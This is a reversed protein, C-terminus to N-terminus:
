DKRRFAVEVTVPKGGRELTLQATDGWEYSGVKHQLKAGSDVSVDDLKRLIDGVAIGARAGVSDKSVQIIKMPESGLKGMLSVGLVPLDPGEARKVGWFYNAYSAQAAAVPAHKDDTVAVPILSAIRGSFGSKLQREAGLGYAVHGAGILVVVIGKPSSQALSLQGASWGMSADWTVQARYLGELQEPTLQSHLKDEDDFYARFLERHEANTTDVNPPLHKRTEADLADFGKARVTKVVDRPANIGRIPVHRDRALLFIDRYYGWHHSWNEYWGADDIFKAEDLTGASWQDLPTTLTWPFMELGLTVDRGADLLAKIVLREVRHDELSTHEEGIFLVRVDQLRRALDRPSILAGDSTDTIADLVVPATHAKRAPDGLALHQVDACALFPAAGVLV